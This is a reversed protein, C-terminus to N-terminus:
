GRAAATEFAREADDLFAARHDPRIMDHLFSYAERTMGACLANFVRTFASIDRADVDQIKAQLL